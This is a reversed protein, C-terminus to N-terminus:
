GLCWKLNVGVLSRQVVHLEGSAEDGEDERGGAHRCERARGRHNALITLADVGLEEAVAAAIRGPDLVSDPQLVRGTGADVDVDRERVLTHKNCLVQGCASTLVNVCRGGQFTSYRDMYGTGSCVSGGLVFPVLSVYGSEEV